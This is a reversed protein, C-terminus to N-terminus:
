QNNTHTNYYLERFQSPTIEEHYTFFKLFYKYDEFGAMVAIEKLPYETQMLLEKIYKMKVADIYSKLGKYYYQKFFRAIYDENYKFHAAIDAVKINKDRNIRIWECIDTILPPRKDVESTFHVTAEILIMRVLYDSMNAPYEATNSFHLLQKFLLNMQYEDSMSVTKVANDSPIDARFHMWYFSVTDKSPRFGYHRQNKELIIVDGKKLIYENYGECLYVTGDTVYILVNTDIVRSPHIWEERSTFKGATVYVAEEYFM